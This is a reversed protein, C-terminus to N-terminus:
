WLEFAGNRLLLDGRLEYNLCRFFYETCLSPLPSASALWGEPTERFLSAVEPHWIEGGHWSLFVNREGGWWWWMPQGTSM